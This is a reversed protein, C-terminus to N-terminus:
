SLIRGLLIGCWAATLCLIVSLVVNALALLFVGDELLALTELSFSSFSTFGGLIGVMTFARWEAAVQFRSLFIISIVGIIFSGLVNVTLTGYPFARGFVAHMLHSTAFRAVTGLAGGIAIFWILKM